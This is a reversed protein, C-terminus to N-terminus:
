PNSQRLRINMHGSIGRKAKLGNSGNPTLPRSRIVFSSTGQGIATTASSTLRFDGASPNVFSTSAPLLTTQWVAHNTGNLNLGGTGPTFCLNNVVHCTNLLTGNRDGFAIAQNAGRFTNNFIQFNTFTAGSNHAGIAIAQSPQSTLVPDSYNFVNNFIQWDSKTGDGWFAGYLMYNAINEFYNNFIRIYRGDTQIADRSILESSVTHYFESIFRNNYIDCAGINQIGDDGNDGNEDVGHIYRLTLSAIMSPIAEGDMATEVVSVWSRARQVSDRTCNLSSGALKWKARIMCASVVKPTTIGLLKVGAGIVEAM